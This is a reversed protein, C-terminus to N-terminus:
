DKFADEENIVFQKIISHYKGNDLEHQERNREIYDIANELGENGHIIRRNFKQAWVPFHKKKRKNYQFSSKGKLKKVINSIEEMTCVIVMHVHDRCINYALIKIKEKIVIEKIIKTLVEEDKSSLRIPTGRKIRFQLM